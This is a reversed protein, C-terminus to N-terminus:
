FMFVATSLEMVSEMRSQAHYNWFLAISFLLLIFSFVIKKVTTKSHM